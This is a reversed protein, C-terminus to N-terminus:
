ASITFNFKQTIVKNETKIQVWVTYDGAEILRMPPFGVEGNHSYNQNSSHDHQPNILDLEISM